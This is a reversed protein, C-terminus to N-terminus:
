AIIELQLLIFAFCRKQYQAYQKVIRLTTLSNRHFDAAVAMATIKAKQL